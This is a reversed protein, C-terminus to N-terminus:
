RRPRRRATGAATPEPARQLGGSAAKNAAGEDILRQISGDRVMSQSQEILSYFDKHPSGQEAVALTPIVFLASTLVASHTKMM